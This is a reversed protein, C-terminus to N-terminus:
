EEGVCWCYPRRLKTTEIGALVALAYSFTCYDPFTDNSLNRVSIVRETLPLPLCLESSRESSSNHLCRTYFSKRRLVRASSDSVCSCRCAIINGFHVARLQVSQSQGSRSARLLCAVCNGHPPHVSFTNYSQEEGAWVCSIRTLSAGRDASTDARRVRVHVVIGEFLKRVSAGFDGASRQPFMAYQAHTPLTRLAEGFCADQPNHFCDDM